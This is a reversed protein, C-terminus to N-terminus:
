KNDLCAIGRWNVNNLGNTAGNNGVLLYRQGALLGETAGEDPLFASYCRAWSVVVAHWVRM